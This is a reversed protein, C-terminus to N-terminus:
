SKKRPKLKQKINVLINEPVQADLFAEPAVRLNKRYLTRPPKTKTVLVFTNIVRGEKKGKRDIVKGELPEASQPALQAELEKYQM